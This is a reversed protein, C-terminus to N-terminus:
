LFFFFNQTSSLIWNKSLTRQCRECIGDLFYCRGGMTAPCLTKPYSGGSGNIEQMIMPGGSSQQLMIPGSQMMQQIPFDNQVMQPMPFSQDMSQEMPISQEISQEFSFNQQQEEESM